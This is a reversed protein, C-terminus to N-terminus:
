FYNKNFEGINFARYAGNGCSSVVGLTGLIINDGLEPLMENILEM